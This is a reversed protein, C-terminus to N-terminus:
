KSLDLFSNRNLIIGLTVTILITGIIDFVANICYTYVDTEEVDIIKEEVLLDSIERSINM